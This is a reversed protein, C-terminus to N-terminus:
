RSGGEGHPDDISRQRDDLASAVLSRDADSVAAAHPERQWRRFALVLFAVAVALAVVPLIWVLAGVGSSPPTLLIDEGQTEAFYVRIQEDTRGEAVQEAIVRRIGKSAAVNSDAASEGACAPCAITRAIDNVRDQDTRTGTTGQSGFALLAVVVVFLLAWPLLTRVPSPRRPPAVQSTM